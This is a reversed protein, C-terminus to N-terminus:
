GLPLQELLQRGARALDDGVDGPHLVVREDAIEGPAFSEEERQFAADVQVADEVGDLVDDLLHQGRVSSKLGDGGSAAGTLADSASLTSWPQTISVVNTSVM